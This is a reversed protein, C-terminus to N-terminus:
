SSPQLRRLRAFLARRDAPKFILALAFWALLVCEILLVGAAQWLQLPGCQRLLMFAVLAGLMLPLGPLVVTRLFELLSVPISREHVYIVFLCAM